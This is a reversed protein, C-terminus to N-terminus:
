RIVEEYATLPTSTVSQDFTLTWSPLPEKTRQLSLQWLAAIHEPQTVTLGPKHAAEHEAVIVAGTRICIQADRQGVWVKTGAYEPPVSYRSRGYRVFGEYDVTRELAPYFQYPAVSTVPTLCEKSLLDVPRQGTTAHVRVNSTHDLWHRGQTNLDAVDMFARGNLFNDRVYFVMREVKGKTRARYARHTTPVIGYHNCFDIFLPNWTNLDLKVQKMNDYLIRETWGGFFEFANLHCRILEALQMSTTFEVYMMRSFSLVMVFAYVPIIKGQPDTFRGCHAWDAQSQKGAPTEFRVTLKAQRKTQPRLTAVYRRVPYVSGTYGM